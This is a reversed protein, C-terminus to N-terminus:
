QEERGYIGMIKEYLDPAEGKINNLVALREPETMTKLSGAITAAYANAQNSQQEKKRQGSVIKAYENYIMRRFEEPTNNNIEDFLKQWEQANDKMAHLQYAYKAAQDMYLIQQEVNNYVEDVIDNRTLTIDKWIKDAEAADANMLRSVYEYTAMEDAMARVKAYIDTNEQMMEEEYRKRDDGNLKNYLEAKEQIKQPDSEAEEQAKMKMYNPDQAKQEEAQQEQMFQDLYPQREEEPLQAYEQQKEPPLSQEAQQYQQQQMYQMIQAQQEEPPLQQLQQQQEPPMSAVADQMQKEQMHQEVAEQAEVEGIMQKKMGEIQMDMQKKGMRLQSKEQLKLQQAMMAMQQEMQKNAMIEQQALQKEAAMDQLRMQILQMRTQDKVQQERLDKDIGAQAISDKLNEQRAIERQDTQLSIQAKTTEYQMAGQEQALMKKIDSYKDLERKKYRMETDYDEGLHKFWSESSYNGNAHEQALYGLLSFAEVLEPANLKIEVREGEALDQNIKEQIFYVTDQAADVLMNIVNQLVMASVNQRSWTAGGYMFEIPIGLGGMIDQMNARMEQDTGLIKGDGWLTLSGVEVPMIPVYSKDKKFKELELRLTDRWTKLNITQALPAGANAGREVPFLIRLPVLAEDAIVRNANMYKMRLGLEYFIRALPPIPLGHIQLTPAEYVFLKDSSIRVKMHKTAANIFTEPTSCMIFHDTQSIKRQLEGDLEYSYQKEGTVMNLSATIRNPSWLPILINGANSQVDEKLEFILNHGKKECVSSQCAFHYKGDSDRTYQAVGNKHLTDMRYTIGCSPCKLMKRIKYMPYMYFTGYLQYDRIAKVLTEKLKIKRITEEALKESKESESKITLGAVAFQALKQIATGVITNTYFYECYRYYVRVDEVYSAIAKPESFIIRDSESATRYGLPTAQPPPQM